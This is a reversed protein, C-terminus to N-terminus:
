SLYSIVPAKEPYPLAEGPQETPTSEDWDTGAIM